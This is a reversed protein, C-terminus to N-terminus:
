LGYVIKLAEQIIEEKTPDHKWDSWEMEDIKDVVKNSIDSLQFDDSLHVNTLDIEDYLDFESFSRRIVKKLTKKDSSVGYVKIRVISKEKEEEYLNWKKITNDIQKQIFEEENEVPIITLTENFYLVETNVKKYEINTTKDDLINFYRRGTENINLGCPSGPYCVIEDKIVKHIHGLIVKIPNYMEIVKKTLPMYTGPENPNPENMTGTWNGHSVLIWQEKKLEDSYEAIIQGMNKEPHYPIFFFQFGDDSFNKFTPSEIIKINDQVMMSKKLQSDHNGPIIIFKTDYHKEAFNEFESYNTFNKDFVDGAIILNYIGKEQIQNVIDELANFRELHEKGSTLHVDATIALKMM